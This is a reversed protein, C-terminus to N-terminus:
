LNSVPAEIVTQTGSLSHKSAKTIKWREGNAREIVNGIEIGSQTPKFFFSFRSEEFGGDGGYKQTTGYDNFIAKVSYETTTQNILDGYDSYTKSAYKELTVTEGYKDIQKPILSYDFMMEEGKQSIIAPLVSLKEM